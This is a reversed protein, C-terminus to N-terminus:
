VEEANFRTELGDFGKFLSDLVIAMVGMSLGEENMLSVLAGSEVFERAQELDKKDIMIEM